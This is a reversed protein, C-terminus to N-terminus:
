RWSSDGGIGSLVVDSLDAVTVAGFIAQNDLEVGWLRELRAVAHLLRVSDAGPLDKLITDPTVDDIDIRLQAALHDRVVRLVDERSEVHPETTMGVGITTLDIAM